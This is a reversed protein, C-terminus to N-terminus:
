VYAINNLNCYWKLTNSLIYDTTHQSKSVLLSLKLESFPFRNKKFSRLLISNFIIVDYM